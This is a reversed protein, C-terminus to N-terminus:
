VNPEFLKEMRRDEESPLRKIKEWYRYESPWFRSRQRVQLSPPTSTEKRSRFTSSKAHSGPPVPLTNSNSLIYAM